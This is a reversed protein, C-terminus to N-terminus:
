EDDRWTRGEVEDFWEEVEAFEFGASTVFELYNGYDAGAGYHDYLERATNLCIKAMQDPDAGDQIGKVMVKNILVTFEQEASLDDRM